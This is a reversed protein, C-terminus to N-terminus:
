QRSGAAKRFLCAVGVRTPRELIHWVSAAVANLHFVAADDTNVLFIDNDVTRLTVGPERWYAIAVAEVM